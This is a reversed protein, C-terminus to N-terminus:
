TQSKPSARSSDQLKSPPLNGTLHVAGSANRSFLNEFLDSTHILCKWNQPVIKNLQSRLTNMRKLHPTKRNKQPLDVRKASHRVRSNWQGLHDLMHLFAVFHLRGVATRGFDVLNHLLAPIQIRLLPRTKRWNKNFKFGHSFRDSRLPDLFESHM